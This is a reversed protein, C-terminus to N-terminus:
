GGLPGKVLDIDDVWVTGTGDIVVNLKILEPKQGKKLLFPTEISSWDVTGTVPSQLGRSFFEGQGPLVCWMELYARGTVNAAWLSM